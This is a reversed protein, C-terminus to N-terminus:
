KKNQGNDMTTQNITKLHDKDQCCAEAYVREEVVDGRSGLLEM